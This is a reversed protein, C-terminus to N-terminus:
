IKIFEKPIELQSFADPNIWDKCAAYSKGNFWNSEGGRNYSGYKLITNNASVGMTIHHLVKGPKIVAQFKAYDFGSKYNNPIDLNTFYKTMLIRARESGKVGECYIADVDGCKGVAYLARGELLDGRIVVLCKVVDPNREAFEFEDDLVIGQYCSTTLDGANRSCQPKPIQYVRRINEGSTIFMNLTNKVLEAQINEVLTRVDDESATPLVKKLIRGIKGSQRLESGYYNSYTPLKAKRKSDLFSLQVNAGNKSVELYDIESSASQLQPVLTHQINSLCDRLEKGINM